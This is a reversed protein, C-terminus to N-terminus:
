KSVWRHFYGKWVSFPFCGLLRFLRRCFSFQWEPIFKNMTKWFGENKWLWAKSCWIGFTFTLKWTKEELKVLWGRFITSLPVVAGRHKRKPRGSGVHMQGNRHGYRPPFIRPACIASGFVTGTKKVTWLRTQLWITVQCTTRRRHLRFLGLVRKENSIQTEHIIVNQFNESSFFYRHWHWWRTESIEVLHNLSSVKVMGFLDCVRLSALYLSKWCSFPYKSSWGM